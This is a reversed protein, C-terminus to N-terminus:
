EVCIAYSKLYRTEPVWPIIPHDPAQEGRRVLRISRKAARAAESVAELFRDEEVHYSCSSTFFFGGPAVLRIALENIDQYGRLANGATKRTKAFAPPDLIVVGFAKGSLAALAKHADGHLVDLRDSVGNLAANEVARACCEESRDVVLASEAGAVLAHLAWSGTHAYVDL